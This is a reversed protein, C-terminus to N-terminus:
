FSFDNSVGGFGDLEIGLLQEGATRGVGFVSMLEQTAVGGVEYHLWANSWTSYFLVTKGPYPPAIAEPVNTTLNAGASWEVNSSECFQGSDNYRAIFKYEATTGEKLAM